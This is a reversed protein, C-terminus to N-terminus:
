HKRVYQTRMQECLGAICGGSIIILVPIVPLVYRIFDSIFAWWTSYFLIHILTLGTLIGWQFRMARFTYFITAFAIVTFSLLPYFVLPHKYVLYDFFARTFTFSFLVERGQTTADITTYGFTFLGQNFHLNYAFQPILMIIIVAIFLLADWYRRRLLYGGTFILVYIASTIRISITIGAAIGALWGLNEKELSKFYIYINLLLFFTTAPESLMAFWMMYSVYTNRLWPTNFFGAFCYILYPAITWVLACFISAATKRTVMRAIYGVLYISILALMTHFVMVPKILDQWVQARCMVVLPTLLLPFGIPYKEHVPNFAAFSKAMNFYLIQDGGGCHFQWGRHEIPPMDLLFGAVMGVRLLVLVSLSYFLLRASRNKESPM